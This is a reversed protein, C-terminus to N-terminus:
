SLLRIAVFAEAAHMGQQSGRWVALARVADLSRADPAPRIQSEYCALARLKTELHASIDVWTNPTFSAELYPANWHTESQVEYCYIAGLKRGIASSSRWAVSLAHFIERHDKHLDFPFPAYLVDPQSREVLSGVARNLQWVPQDACRIADRPNCVIAEGKVNFSTNLVVPVGTQQEFAELLAHYRPATKADVTQCRVTNDVHVVAPVERRAQETAEFALIMFPADDPKILYRAAAEITLSPCFPRWYERFKVAANVRDRAAITRRDALISRGGLARPGGEMRGQFWGIVKGGALLEATATALDDPRRYALGCQQLQNEIVEDEYEPGLYVHELPPPRTGTVAVHHATAAGIALGSDSPIPFARVHDFLDMRHLRSNLRAM